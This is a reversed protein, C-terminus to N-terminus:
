AAKKDEAPGLLPKFVFREAIRDIAESVASSGGFLHAEAEQPVSTDLYASEPDIEKLHWIFNDLADSAQSVACSFDNLDEDLQAFLDAQIVAQSNDFQYVDTIYEKLGLLFGTMLEGEIVIQVEPQIAGHRTRWSRIIRASESGPPVNQSSKPSIMAVLKSPAVWSTIKGSTLAPCGADVFVHFRPFNM